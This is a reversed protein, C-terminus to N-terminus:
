AEGGAPAGASSRRRGGRGRGGKGGLPPAELLGKLAAKVAPSARERILEDVLRSPAKRAAWKGNTSEVWFIDELDHAIALSRDEACKPIVREPWLHMALHAWDYNGLVLEDWCEKVAKQWPRHTILRWLPAHNIIVGDNLDPRWLPAVCAVEEYFSRIDGVVGEQTELDRRQRADPSAGFEETLRALRSEEHQLKEKVLELCLFFTDKHFRHYYLWLTYSGSATSIPWYIPAQRRSKSYRKLHDAFFGAPRRFWERLTAVGLLACSEHVLADARDGWLIALATHVRRELDLPHEPDDVLIGGWAVDLPYRGEAQLRRGAEPPLPLGDEGQLMGPPCVPLPEFPDPLEPAPREGTAFRIDWRGFLWGVALQAVYFAFAGDGNVGFDDEIAHDEPSVEFAELDIEPLSFATSVHDSIRVCSEVVSAGSDRLQDRVKRGLDGISNVSSLDPPVFGRDTEWLRYVAAKTEWVDEALVSIPASPIDSAPWPISNVVGTEYSGAQVQLHILARVPSSNWYGLCFHLDTGEPPFIVPGKDAFICGEPLARPSFGRVTRRPYTIGPLKYFTSARRSQADTDYGMRNFEGVERGDAFWNVLLHIDNYFTEFYGGKSFFVWRRSWGLEQSPVEWVLRLFRFDDYTTSGARASGGVSALSNSEQAWKWFAEPINYLFRAGNVEALKHRDALYVGKSVRAECLEGIKEALEAERAGSKRLDIAPCDVLRSASTSFVSACAFVMAGDLVGGGLDTVIEVSEIFRRRRWEALTKTYLCARSTLAGTRGDPCLESAREIFAALVDIFAYPYTENVYDITATATEGFPPNMVVVDYRKRCLDIFAFGRAADHAFLRRKFGSGNEAQEAYAELANYIRQEAREWFQEDTIGSLDLPLRGQDKEGLEAFLIAQEAKPGEIWIRKADAIATRIEEEIRLLSGADGALTMRDFVTELLFAFARREGAPFQKEVFERLLEKEGPMPEACVLNSRHITPRDAPRVGVQHWGRQARMWLSLGAIQAARPDIDIGHINCEIILRPVERLFATKDPFSVTFAVFPAFTEGTTMAPDSGHAIEWAEDYIITFLDFAYLGFHMSGCAPDLLQIDRPDKLPRHPIYVPERLLEEHSLATGAGATIGAACEPGLEGPKLFFETPRRVLYRCRDRLVTEGRRMDYWLRGLTNDTLFEVVYRPTFFQNRVALERSNRPAASEERMAKREDNSNYYQYVWGITEDEGWVAALDPLNLTGLLEEFCARRPWLVSAADRRNFLVKLGVSLEDFLSEIYLRYGASDPLLAVGPALGCFERYGASQEGKTICEQLLDRAELMKLAVFRNLATFAAERLYDAVSDASNMGAARKHEIAAVIRERQFAQRRDLHPGANAAVVGTRNVDFTGELQAAFDEELLKRARQTAREIANRTDKDM